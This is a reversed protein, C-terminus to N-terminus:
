LKIKVEVLNLITFKNSHCFRKILERVCIKIPKALKHCNDNFSPYNLITYIIIYFTDLIFYEM